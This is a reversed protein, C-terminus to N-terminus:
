RRVWYISVAEAIGTVVARALQGRHNSSAPLSIRPPTKTYAAYEFSSWCQDSKAIVILEYWATGSLTAINRACVRGHNSSTSPSTNSVPQASRHVAVAAEANSRTKKLTMSRAYRFFRAIKQPHKPRPSCSPGRVRVRSPESTTNATVRATPANRICRRLVHFKSNNTRSCSMKCYFPM